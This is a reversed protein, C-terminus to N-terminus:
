AKHYESKKKRHATRSLCSFLKFSAHVPESTSERPNFFFGSSLSQEKPKPPIQKENEPPFVLACKMESKVAAAIKVNEILRPSISYRLGLDGVTVALVRSRLESLSGTSIWDIVM